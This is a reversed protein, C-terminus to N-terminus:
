SEVEGRKEQSEEVYRCSSTRDEIESYVRDFDDFKM